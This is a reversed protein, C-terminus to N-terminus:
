RRPGKDKLALHDHPEVAQDFDGQAHGEDTLTQGVGEASSEGRLHEETGDTQHVDDHLFQFGDDQDEDRDEIDEAPLPFAEL